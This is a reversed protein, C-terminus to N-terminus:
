SLSGLVRGPSRNHVPDQNYVVIGGQEGKGPKGGVVEVRAVGGAHAGFVELPAHLGEFVPKSGSNCFAIGVQHRDDRGDVGGAAEAGVPVTGPVVGAEVEDVAAEFFAGEGSERLKTEVEVLGGERDAEIGAPPGAGGEAMEEGVGALKVPEDGAPAVADEGAVDDESGWVTGQGPRGCPQFPNVTGDEDTADERGVAGLDSGRFDAVSDEVDELVEVGEVPDKGLGAGASGESRGDVAGFRGIGVEDAFGEGGFPGVEEEVEVAVHLGPPELDLLVHEKVEVKAELGFGEEDKGADRPSSFAGDDAEQGLGDVAGFVPARFAVPEDGDAGVPM